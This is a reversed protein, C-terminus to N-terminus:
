EFKNALYEVFMDALKKDSKLYNWFHPIDNSYLGSFQRWLHEELDTGAFCEGFAKRDLNCYAHALKDLVSRMQIEKQSELVAKVIARVAGQQEPPIGFLTGYGSGYADYLGEIAKDVVTDEAM